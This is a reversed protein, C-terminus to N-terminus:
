RRRWPSSSTRPTFTAAEVTHSIRFSAPIPGAGSRLELVQASKRREWALARSAQSKKSVTVRDPARSYTNATMSCALRRARIRPAVACGLAAQTACAALFRTM